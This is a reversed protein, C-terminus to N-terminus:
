NKDLGFGGRMAVEAGLEAVTKDSLVEFVSVEVGCNTVVWNRVGVAVLSDVGYVNPPKGTDIEEPLMNMAKALMQSLGTTIIQAAAGTDACYFLSYRMDAKESSGVVTPDSRPMDILNLHGYLATRSWYPDAPQNQRILGGTGIGMIVQPPMETIPDVEMTIAHAMVTLFDQHRIGYFGSARLMDLIGDDEALMGAGLVPGLDISVAHKGESRYSRALADQFCNGAAYNAQGRSGIVGASSSLFIFFPDKARASIIEVLNDSGITKPRFAANWDSYTMNEFVADKIVAACQFVGKIPPMDLLVDQEIVKELAKADCIDVQYVQVDIGKDKLDKIFLRSAESSAGSRSLFAIHEAGNKVLLECISRGLGGLGGALLYTSKNCLAEPLSKIRKPALIPVLPNSKLGGTVTVLGLYPSKEVLEFAQKINPLEVCKLLDKDVAFKEHHEAFKVLEDLLESVYDADHKLLNALDFNIFSASTPTIRIPPPCPSKGRRVCKFNTEVHDQTSNYVLDVGKGGTSDCVVKVFSDTDAELIHDGKLGLRQLSIRQLSSDPGKVTAFVEISLQSAVVIAALGFSSAGTHVLVTKGQGLRGVKVLSHYAIVCQSLALDYPWKRVFRHDLQISNQLSGGITLGSVRDGPMFGSVYRGTRTVSGRFDAGVVSDVTRGMITELDVHNLTASNFAIEVDGARPKFTDGPVFKMEDSGLGPREIRLKLHRRYSHFPVKLVRTSISNEVIGNLEGLPVLRPIFIIGGKEAYELERPFPGKDERFSRSIIVFINNVVSASNLPTPIDLDFTVIIKLPDESVLTRSLAIIPAGKPNGSSMNAGRTVWLIGKANERLAHFANFDDESWHFVSAHHAEGSAFDLLSIVVKGKLRTPDELVESLQMTQTNAWTEQKVILNNALVTAARTPENPLLVILDSVASSNATAQHHHVQFMLERGNEDKLELSRVIGMAIPQETSEHCAELLWGPRKLHKFLNSTDVVAEPNAVIILDYKPMPKSGYVSRREATGGLLEGDPRFNFMGDHESVQTLTWSSMCPRKRDLIDLCENATFSPDIQMMSAAWYYNGLSNRIHKSGGVQLISLAPYKFTLQDIFLETILPNGFAADEQWIIETCLARHNPLFGGEIPPPNSIGTFHLGSIVVSPRTWCSQTMAIDANADRIGSRTATAYGTFTNGQSRSIDSSVFINKVYTPVMPENDVAFLTQFMSDLTAPHILHDYEFKAPMKSKTDPVRVESVCGHDGKRIQTINQFLTGYNMGVTDLLEYLQRPVIPNGCTAKVSEYRKQHQRFTAKWEGQKHRAQILGTAHQEWPADLPKSYISFEFCLSNKQGAVVPSTRKFNLATELGHATNPVVMAKDIRMDTIDYGLLEKDGKILQRIGELAMTVMGAAPYIITKQVQHDQIWPNESIRLFGRWRPEFSIADATPAGILDQRPFERFRNARGLHSEHWYSKTHNWPYPPLDALCKLPVQYSGRSVVKKMSISLGLAWLGGVVGLLSIAGHIGKGELVSAYCTARDYNTTSGIIDMTPSRLAAAPSLELIVHPHEEAPLTLMSHMAFWFLVPSVLNNTWYCKGLSSGEVPEGTVSSFMRVGRIHERPTVLALASEYENAVSRMHSSHYAVQVPLIRCFINKSSFDYNAQLICESTGSLTTSRPGNICAVECQYSSTSLHAEVDDVSLGVVMMSGQAQPMEYKISSAVVGRYYAVEWAAERTLAGSAYAAAVEGSSHGLVYNPTILFSDLLDVLAVQVATTAPQAIQPISIRSENEDKLIEELVDFSSGLNKKMYSSAAELSDRFAEFPLLDKGMQAFQAGQGCFLFCIKPKINKPARVFKTEDIGQLKEILEGRSKAVVTHKWELSSRRSGITYAYNRLFNPENGEQSNVYRLHSEMVRRLGSKEHSSFCFVQPDFGATPSYESISAKASSTVLSNHNGQLGRASMYKPAEDMIVHANTGGFGFCNVSVRRLGPLPWEMMETPVKVKWAQFDIDPNGNEFNINPPIKGHELTLVGKILGAVGAAGELHGINPKVSGVIIPNGVTRVSALSESIAKLERWDGAQTGTGHCEVYATQNFDLGASEYISTINAVQAEKSPLTIGTTHGDQNVRTARIVARITDNDRLADQLRKLIVVGIGEGRGYGNARADFTFCKGDPSLFNLATMPMMTNPTLIMGAGAAIALSSEGSRLSQAALHVSVLSGSCGTDITMSPGHLNFYYSIRNAMIAIGNGTAAYQPQWDPDRLCVQEYDKVFSGVYVATDSGDIDEKRIGANELAEYSTELLIRQQPDIAKADEAAVSFFSADFASFDGKLFHAGRFSISGQRDGSPHYYGDINLRDKPFESWQSEGRELVKWLGEPSSADGPFRLGIGVVAIDDM